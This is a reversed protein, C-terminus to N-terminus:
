RRQIARRVAPVLLDHALEYFVRGQRLESRLVRADALAHLARIPLKSQEELIQARFGTATVFQEAIAAKITKERLRSVEAAMRVARDFFTQLTGEVGLLGSIFDPEVRAEVSMTRMREVIATISLQLMLPEVRGEDDALRQTLLQGVEDTISIHQFEFTRRLAHLAAERSLATLRFRSRMRNPFVDAVEELRPLFDERISFLVSMRRDEDILKAIGDLFIERASASALQRTFYEEVQDVIIVRRQPSRPRDADMLPHRTVSPDFRVVPLVDCGEASLAPIVGAHVFSTKGTGSRGYLVVYGEAILMSTVHDVETERGFFALRDSEYFPRVGVPGWGREGVEDVDAM